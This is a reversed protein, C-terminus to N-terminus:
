FSRIKWDGRADKEFLVQFSYVKGDRTSRLDYIALNEEERIFGIDGLDNALKSREAPPLSSFIQRYSQKSDDCFYGIARDIQNQGLAKRMSDWKTRILTDLGVLQNRNGVRKSKLLTKLDELEKRGYGKAEMMAIFKSEEPTFDPDGKQNQAYSQHSAQILLLLLLISVIKKM